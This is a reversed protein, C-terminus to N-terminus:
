KIFKEQMLEDPKLSLHIIRGTGTGSEAPTVVQYGKAENTRTDYIVFTSPIDKQNAGDYGMIAGPNITLTNGVQEVRYAHNHGYCVVDYKVSETVALAINDYHNVAIRKGAVTRDFFKGHLKKFEKRNVLKGEIEVLEAFEGHILVHSHAQANKTIRFLDGDNNGFVIHIPSAFGNALQDVIFPSCLDGCCIMVDTDQIGQLGAALKWVNDHIDSLIAIKM